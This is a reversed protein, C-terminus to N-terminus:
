KAVLNESFFIKAYILTFTEINSLSIDRFCEQQIATPNKKKKSFKLFSIAVTLLYKKM